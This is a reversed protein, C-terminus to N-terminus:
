NSADGPLALVPLEPALGGVPMPSSFSYGFRAIVSEYRAVTRRNALHTLLGGSRWDELYRDNLDRRPDEGGTVPDLALFSQLAGLVEDSRTVLDEYRVVVVREIFALDGAMVEHAHVWHDVLRGVPRRSWGRARLAMAEAVPHRVVVVFSSGPFLAQLFRMKLLNSPTKEVLVKQDTDWHPAWADWLATRSATSVLPSDETLHMASAYAFRDIGGAQQQTTYVDQVYQGEDAVPGIGELNSVGPSRAVEAALLTTGSRPLGGIFVFRHQEVLDAV